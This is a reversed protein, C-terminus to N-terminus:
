QREGLEWTEGDKEESDQDRKGATSWGGPFHDRPAPFPGLPPVSMSVPAARKMTLHPSFSICDVDTLLGSKVAQLANVTLKLRKFNFVFTEEKELSLQSSGHSVCSSEPLLDGGQEVSERQCLPLDSCSFQITPCHEDSLVLICSLTSPAAAHHSQIQM